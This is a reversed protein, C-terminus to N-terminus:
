ISINIYTVKTTSTKLSLQIVYNEIGIVDDISVALNKRCRLLEIVSGKFSSFILFMKECKFSSGRLHRSINRRNKKNGLM